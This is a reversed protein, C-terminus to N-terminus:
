VHARGIKNNAEDLVGVVDGSAGGEPIDILTLNGDTGVVLIKGVNATGQNKAVCVSQAAKIIADVNYPTGVTNGIIKSM